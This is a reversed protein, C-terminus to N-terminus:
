RRRSDRVRVFGTGYHNRAKERAAVEKEAQEDSMGRNIREMIQKETLDTNKLRAIEGSSLTPQDRLRRQLLIQVTPDSLGILRLTIADDSIVELKDAKAIEVIRQESFGAKDLSIVQDTTFPKKHQHAAGVLEVCTSDTIGAEKASTLQATETDSTNLKKLQEISASSMGAQGLARYDTMLHQECGVFIFFASAALGVLSFCRPRATGDTRVQAGSLQTNRFFDM